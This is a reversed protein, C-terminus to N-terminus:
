LKALGLPQQRMPRGHACRHPTIKANSEQHVVNNVPVLGIYHYGQQKGKEAANNTGVIAKAGEFVSKVYSAM